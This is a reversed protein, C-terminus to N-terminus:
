SKKPNQGGRVQKQAETKAKHKPMGSKVLKEFLAQIKAQDDNTSM